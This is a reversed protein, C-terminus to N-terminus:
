IRAVSIASSLGSTSGGMSGGIGGMLSTMVGTKITNEVAEGPKTKKWDKPSKSTKGPKGGSPKGTKRGGTKGGTKRGGTKRGGSKGGDRTKKNSRGEDKGANGYTIMGGGARTPKFLKVPVGKVIKESADGNKVLKRLSTLSTDFEFHKVDSVTSWKGARVSHEHSKELAEQVASLKESM